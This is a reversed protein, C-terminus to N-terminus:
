IQGLKELLKRAKETKDNRAIECEKLPETGGSTIDAIASRLEERTTEDCGLVDVLSSMDNINGLLSDTMRVKKGAKKDSEYAALRRVLHSVASAIKMGAEQSADFLQERTQERIARVEDEAIDLVVHSEDPVPLYRVKVSFQDRFQMNNVPYESRQFMGNRRSQAEGVWEDFKEASKDAAENFATMAQAIKAKLELLYGAAVIYVGDTWPAGHKVVIARVAEGAQRAPKTADDHYLKNRWEGSGQGAGHRDLVENTITSDKRSSAPTKVNVSILV